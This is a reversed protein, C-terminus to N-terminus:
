SLGSFLSLQERPLRFLQDVFANAPRHILEEKSGIQVLQGKDMVGVRDGLQLAELVDHTVFIITKKLTKKLAIFDQQLANRTIVDLAGFPEDMLLIQADNALARAVGVRQQEGGSLEQPYRSLYRAPDLKVFMLLERAKAERVTLPQKLIRLLITINELVTMHPFLGIGQFVYGISRRLQVPNIDCVDRGNIYIEGGSPKVLQNVMKLTTTKGSGSAGLLVLTEGNKVELSVNNVCYGLGSDYTKYVNKLKIM